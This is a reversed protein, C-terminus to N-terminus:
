LITNIFKELDTAKTDWTYYKEVIDRGVKGMEDLKERNTYLYIIANAISDPNSNKILVGCNGEDFIRQHFPINTAIIPKSMALYELTKLPSSEWCWVNEPPLPIIGVDCISIYSPMKEYAVQHIFRIQENLGLQNCFITLNEIEKADFGVFILKIKKRLDTDINKLSKITNEIGRFPAYSGHYMLIFDKSEKINKLSDPITTNKQFKNIEVGSTWIGVDKEKIKYKNILINKLEPTITTLGRVLFKSLYLSTDVLISHLSRNITTTRIDLILPIGLLKLPIVFPLWVDGGDIIIVDVKKNRFFLPLYFFLIAGYILKSIIPYFITPFTTIENNIIKREGIKRQIILTVKHGQNRLADALEFRSSKHRTNINLETIWYIKM